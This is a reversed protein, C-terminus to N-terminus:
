AKTAWPDPTAHPNRELKEVWRRVRRGFTGRGNILSTITNWTGASILGVGFLFAVIPLLVTLVYMLLEGLPVITLYAVAAIIGSGVIAAALGYAMTDITTTKM